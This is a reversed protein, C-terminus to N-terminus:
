RYLQLNRNFQQKLGSKDSLMLYMVNYGLDDDYNFVVARHDDVHYAYAGPSIEGLYAYREYLFEFARSPTSLTNVLLVDAGDYSIGVLYIVGDVQSNEGNYILSQADEYALERTEYHKIDSRSSAVEFLPERYLTSVPTVTVSCRLSKGAATAIIDATGIRNGTILGSASVRAVNTDSSMYEASMSANLQATANRTLNVSSMSITFEEDKKCGTLLVALLIITTAINKM